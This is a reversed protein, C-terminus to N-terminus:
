NGKWSGLCVSTFIAKFTFPCQFLSQVERFCKKTCNIMQDIREKKGHHELQEQDEDVIEQFLELFHGVEQTDRWWCRGRSGVQSLPNQLEWDWQAPYCVAHGFKRNVHSRLRRLLFSENGLWISEGPKSSTSCVDSISLVMVELSIHWRFWWGSNLIMQTCEQAFRGSPAIYSWWFMHWSLTENKHTMLADLVLVYLSTEDHYVYCDLLCFHDISLEKVSFDFWSEQLGNCAHVEIFLWLIALCGFSSSFSAEFWVDYPLGQHWYCYFHCKPTGDRHGTEKCVMKWVTEPLM